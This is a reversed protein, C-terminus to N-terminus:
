QSVSALIWGNSFWPSDVLGFSRCSNLFLNGFGHDAHPLIKWDMFSDALQSCPKYNM